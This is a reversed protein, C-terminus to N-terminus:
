YDTIVPTFAGEKKQFAGKKKSGEGGEDYYLFVTLSIEHSGTNFAKLDSLTYDYSYGFRFINKQIGISATIADKLRYGIGFWYQKQYIFKANLDVQFPTAEIIQFLVSPQISFDKNAIYNYGGTFYYTRKYGNDFPTVVEFLDRKTQVLHFASLGLYYDNGQHLYVGVNADPIVQYNLTNLVAADDPEYTTLKQVDYRHQSLMAALGFSLIKPAKRSKGMGKSLKLHYAVSFNAATRKTPGTVENIIYGGCGLNLGVYGHASVNQTVPAEKIGMWQRRVGLTVPLYDKVGAIAPNLIFDNFIYQSSLALQQASVSVACFAILFVLIYRKM